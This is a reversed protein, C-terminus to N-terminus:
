LALGEIIELNPIKNLESPSIIIKASRIGAGLILKEAKIVNYDVYIQLESPLGFATVGGIQMGTLNETEESTAFSLRSVEMISKVKKNVDLRTSALAICASYKKPGRKSAIVITNGSESLSYGYNACFDGTDALNPDITIWEHSIGLLNLANRVHTEINSNLSVVGVHKNTM